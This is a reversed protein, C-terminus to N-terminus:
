RRHNIRYCHTQSVQKVHKRGKLWENWSTGDQEWNKEMKDTQLDTTM